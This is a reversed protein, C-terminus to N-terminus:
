EGVRNNQLFADVDDMYFRGIPVKDGEVWINESSVKTIYEPNVSYSKHVRLWNIGNFFEVSASLSMRILRKAEGMYLKTYKGQAQLYRIDKVVIKEHKTGIKLFMDQAHEGQSVIEVHEEDGQLVPIAMEIAAFLNERSFPKVLYSDPNYKKVQSITNADSHATLIIYPINLKNDDIYAAVELGTRGNQLTVDLIILKPHQENIAEIAEDPTAVPELPTYNLMRLLQFLSEAIIAEDEVILIEM